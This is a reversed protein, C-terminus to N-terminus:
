LVKVPVNPEKANVDASEPLSVKKERISNIITSIVRWHTLMAVCNPLDVSPEPTLSKWFVVTINKSSKSIRRM